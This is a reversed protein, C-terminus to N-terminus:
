DPMEFEFLVASVDDPFDAGQAYDTLEQMLAEVLDNGRLGANRKLMENLGEEELLAGAPNPCETVGDSAIFLRDGPELMFEFGQFSVEPLLGIPPGGEGMLELTGDARQVVPHPHGAQVMKVHGTAMNIDAYAFTFYHETEMENLTLTNLTEALTAPALSSYIGMEEDQILAVNQDPSTSSLFGALRATMLASSIGHGSVDIGFLGIRQAAIPFFGVLDGGVHGSPRLLLSIQSRGFQRFRERVLSQQLRRAEELDRDLGEYLVQIEEMKEILQDQMDLIRRGAYLRARLESPNIPKSLFDDAGADLGQAVEDGDSRSTLLLFYGYRARDLSRFQKCLELGTMGPMMWDSLVFEPTNTECFRLAEEGSSAEAVAYGWRNLLKCLILRQMRSDDVVLALPRQGPEQEPGDSFTLVERSM